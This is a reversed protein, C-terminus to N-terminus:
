IVRKKGAVQKSNNLEKNHENAKKRARAALEDLSTARESSKTTKPAQQDTFCRPARIITDLDRSFYYEPFQIGALRELEHGREKDFYFIREDTIRDKFYRKFEDKGYVALIMNTEINDVKYFGRGDPKIACIIPLRDSDVANLVVVVSDSRAPSDAMLVPKELLEPLRKITEITLGHYHPNDDEKPHLADELHKQTYLMPKQEFGASIFVTPTDCVKIQEYPELVDAISDDVEFGFELYRECKEAYRSYVFADNGMGERLQFSGADDVQIIREGQPMGVSVEYANITSLIKNRAEAEPDLSANPSTLKTNSQNEPLVCKDPNQAIWEELTLDNDWLAEDVAERVEGHPDTALKDLGYGSYAVAARVTWSEDNILRDLGFGRLAVEERVFWSSDEILRDLGYGQEAVACRVDADPDTILKELGHGQKAVSRRVDPEPDNVLKDLGFGMEAVTQRVWSDPDEVLKDLGYGHRAVCTRVYADPDNVLTDLGFGKLAVEGRVTRSPDNILKDLGYGQEAVAHRVGVKEDNILKDLAYGRRAVMLRVESVPHDFLRDLGYGQKALEMLVLWDDQDNILKDFGYGNIAAFSRDRHNTSDVLAKQEPTLQAYPIFDAM